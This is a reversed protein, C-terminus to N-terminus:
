KCVGDAKIDANSFADHWSKGEGKVIGEREGGKGGGWIGVVFVSPKWKWSHRNVFADKGWRRRAEILADDRMM